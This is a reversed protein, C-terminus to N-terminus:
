SSKARRRLWLLFVLFFVLMGLFGTLWFCLPRPSVAGIASSPQHALGRALTVLALVVVAASIYLIAPPRYITLFFYGLAVGNFIQISTGVHWSYRYYVQAHRSLAAGTFWQRQLNDMLLM